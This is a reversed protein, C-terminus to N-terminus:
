IKFLINVTIEQAIYFYQFLDSVTFFSENNLNRESSSLIDCKAIQVQICFIM